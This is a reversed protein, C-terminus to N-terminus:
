YHFVLDGYLTQIYNIQGAHWMMNWYPYTMTQFYTWVGWPAELKNEYEAEPFDQIATYYAQANAPLRDILETVSLAAYEAAMDEYPPVGRMILTQAAYAPMMVAETFVQRITRSGEAPKWDLKDEPVAQVAHVLMPMGDDFLKILTEQTTMIAVGAGCLGRYM